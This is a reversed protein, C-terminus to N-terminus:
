PTCLLHETKGRDQWMQQNKLRSAMTSTIVAVLLFILFSLLYGLDHVTVSLVPPIFFIDFALVGLLSSFISPGRGWYADSFLVPLLYLLVINILDFTPELFKSILTLVVIFFTSGLYYFIKSKKIISFRLIIM